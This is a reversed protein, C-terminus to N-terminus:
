EGTKITRKNDLWRTRGKVEKYWEDKGTKERKMIRWQEAEPLIRRLADICQFSFTYAYIPSDTAGLSEGIQKATAYDTPMPIPHKLLYDEFTGGVYEHDETTFLRSWALTAATFQTRSLALYNSPPDVILFEYLKKLPQAQPLDFAALVRKNKRWLPYGFLNYIIPDM